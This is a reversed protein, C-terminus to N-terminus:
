APGDDPWFDADLISAVPFPCTEPFMAEDLGTERAAGVIALRHAEAVAEDLRAKLSPNDALHRDLRLRQEKITLRWSTGRHTPQHQWKLLHRLLVALRNILERKESRGLSDIEEAIHAIDAEGLRGARLLAAQENAWAYFDKEYLSSM